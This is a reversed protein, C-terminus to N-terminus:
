KQALDEMMIGQALCRKIQDVYDPLTEKSLNPMTPYVGFRKLYTEELQYLEEHFDSMTESVEFSFDFDM